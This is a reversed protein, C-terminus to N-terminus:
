YVMADGLLIRLLLLQNVSPNPVPGSLETPRKGSIRNLVLWM